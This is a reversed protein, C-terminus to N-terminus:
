GDKLLSYTLETLSYSYPHLLDLSVWQFLRSDRGYVKIIMFEKNYGILEVVTGEEPIAVFFGRIYFRRFDDPTSSYSSDRIKLIEKTSKTKFLTGIKPKM